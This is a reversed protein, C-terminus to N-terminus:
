CSKQRKIQFYMVVLWCHLHTAEFSQCLLKFLFYGLDDLKFPFHARWGIEKSWIKFNNNINLHRVYFSKCHKDCEFLFYMDISVM